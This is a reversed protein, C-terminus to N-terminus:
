RTMCGQSSVAWPDPLLSDDLTPRASAAHPLCLRQGLVSRRNARRDTSRGAALPLFTTQSHNNFYMARDYPLSDDM